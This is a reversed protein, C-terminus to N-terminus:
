REVDRSFVMPSKLIIPAINLKVINQEFCTWRYLGVVQYQQLSNM